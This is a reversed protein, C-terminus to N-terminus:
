FRVEVILECFFRGAPQSYEIGLDTKCDLWVDAQKGRLLAFLLDATQRMLLKTKASILLSYREVTIAGAKGHLKEFEHSVSLRLEQVSVSPPKAMDESVIGDPVLAAFEAQQMLWINILDIRAM